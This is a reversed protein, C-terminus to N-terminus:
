NLALGVASVREVAGIDPTASRPNGLIDESPSQAQDAQGHAASGQTPTGWQLVLRVFAERITQSGDAFQGTGSNWRPLVPALPGPLLPDGVIRNVDDSPNILESADEPIASGANWMLNNSLTFSTTEGIPTDSFDEMTGNPDCWINNHFRIQHNPLNSGETNLRMAFALSPLDGVITNHRFLADACGKVGIPARM